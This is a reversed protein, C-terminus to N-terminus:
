FCLNMFKGEPHFLIKQDNFRPLEQRSSAGMQARNVWSASYIPDDILIPKTLKPRGSYDSNGIQICKANPSLDAYPSKLKSPNGRGNKGSRSSSCLNFATHSDECSAAM